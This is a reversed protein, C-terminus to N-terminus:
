PCYRRANAQISARDPVPLGQEGAERELYDYLERAYCFMQAQAESSNFHFASYGEAYFERVNTLSYGDRAGVDFSRERPIGRMRRRYADFARALRRDSHFRVRQSVARERQRESMTDLPRPRRGMTQVHDWAHTMEHMLHMYRIGGSLDMRIMRLQPNYQDLASGSTPFREAPFQSPLSATQWFRLGAREMTRLQTLSFESMALLITRRTRISIESPEIGRLFYDMIRQREPDEPGPQVEQRQVVPGSVTKQLALPRHRDVASQINHGNTYGTGKPQILSLIQRPQFFTASAAQVSGQYSKEGESYSANVAPSFFPQAPETKAQVRATTKKSESTQM